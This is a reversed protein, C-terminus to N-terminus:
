VMYPAMACLLNMLTKSKYLERQYESRNNEREKKGHYVILSLTLCQAHPPMKSIQGCIFDINELTQMEALVYAKMSLLSPSDKSYDITDPSKLLQEKFDLIKHGGAFESARYKVIDTTPTPESM